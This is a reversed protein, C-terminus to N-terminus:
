YDGNTLPVKQIARMNLTVPSTSDDIGAPMYKKGESTMLRRFVDYDIGDSIFKVSADCFAANFASPHNSNPRAYWVGQGSRYLNELTDPKINPPNLGVPYRNFTAEASSADNWVFGVHIETPAFNWEELDVNESLAITNSSGDPIRFLTTKHVLHSDLRGKMRNDFVGNQPWDFGAQGAQAAAYNDLLGSNVAYSLQSYALPAHPNEDTEDSPCFVINLRGGVQQVSGTGSLLLEEVRERMTQQEFFPMLEHVWTLTNASASPSSWSAPIGSRNYTAFNWYTRSAPVFGRAQNFQHAALQLQRLNNTCYAKRSTAIAASVGVMLLAALMSIISIVVLMEVLTFGPRRLWRSRVLFSQM